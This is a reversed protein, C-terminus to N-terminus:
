SKKSEAPDNEIRTDKPKLQIFQKILVMSKSTCKPCRDYIDVFDCDLCLKAVSLDFGM